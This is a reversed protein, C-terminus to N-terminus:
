ESFTSQGCQWVPKKNNNKSHLHIIILRPTQINIYYKRRFKHHDQKLFSNTIKSEKNIYFIDISRFLAPKM